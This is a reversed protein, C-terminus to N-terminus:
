APETERITIPTNGYRTGSINWTPNPSLGNSAPSSNRDVITPLRDIFDAVTHTMRLKRKRLTSITFPQRTARNVKRVARSSGVM